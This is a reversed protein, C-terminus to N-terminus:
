VVFFDASTVALGPSLKAVDYASASGTGDPDYRVIGTADDYLIRHDATTASSGVHFASYALEGVPLVNFAKQSLLVTDDYPNFDKVLDLTHVNKFLFSDQGANGWMKNIGKGDTLVDNGDGGKIKDNGAKGDLNDDGAKGKIKDNGKKGIIFDDQNTGIVKGGTKNGKIINPKATDYTVDDLVLYSGTFTVSAIPKKSIVQIYNTDWDDVLVSRIVAGSILNGNKDYAAIANHWDNVSDVYAGVQYVKAGDFGFTVSGNYGNVGMYAGGSPVEGVTDIVGNAVLSWTSGPKNILDGILVVQANNPIPNLLQLGSPFQFTSM